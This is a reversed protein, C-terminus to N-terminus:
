NLEMARWALATAEHEEVSMAGEARLEAVANDWSAPVEFPGEEILANFDLRLGVLTTGDPTYSGILRVRYPGSLAPLPVTLAHAAGDEALGHRLLGYDDSLALALMSAPSLQGSAAEYVQTAHEVPAPDTQRGMIRLNGGQVELIGIEIELWPGSV